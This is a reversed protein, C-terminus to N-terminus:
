IESIIRNASGTLSKELKMVIRAHRPLARRFVWIFVTQAARLFGVEWLKVVSLNWRLIAKKSSHIFAEESIESAWMCFVYTWLIECHHIPFDQFTLRWGRLSTLFFCGELDVGWSLADSGVLVGADATGFGMRVKSSSVGGPSNRVDLPMYKSSNECDSRLSCTSNKVTSVWFM